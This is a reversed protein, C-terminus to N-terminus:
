SFRRYDPERRMFTPSIHACGDAARRRARAAQRRALVRCEIGAVVWQDVESENSTPQPVTLQEDRDM